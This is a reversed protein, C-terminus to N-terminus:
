RPAGPKAEELIEVPSRVAAPTVSTQAAIKPDISQILRTVLEREQKIRGGAYADRVANALEAAEDEAASWATLTIIDTGKELKVDIRERLRNVADSESVNWRSHLRCSKVVSTLCDEALISDM